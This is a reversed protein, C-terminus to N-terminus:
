QLGKPAAPLAVHFSTGQEGHSTIWIRGGHAEIISRSISLGLGMGDPKTTLFPQFLRDVVQADIGTGHDRVTLEVRGAEGPGSRVQLQRPRDDVALMAQLGNLVLNIIVQQLQVRDVHVPALGEALRLELSARHASIEHQVLQVTEEAIENISHAAAHQHDKKALGRLRGVVDSARRGDGIMHVVCTRVEDLEPEQRDLWRLCAEGQTVVAALPQNIEHAISATLGGLTTVRTVHALEAQAQRLKEAAQRRETADTNAELIAMPRGYGDRELSWRSEMNLRRGDKARHVFEGEWRGTRLLEENISPLPVPFETRLLDHISQGVAEDRSWGYLAEAGKNWYTVADSMDRVSVTDHTLDLLNAREALAAAVAENRLVLATTVAIAAMSVLCRLLADREELLAHTLVYSLLTLLICVLGLVLIGRRRFGSGALLVVLVYLVAVAFSTPTAVDIVFIAIALVAALAGAMRRTLFADREISARM